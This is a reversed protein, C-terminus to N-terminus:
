YVAPFSWQMVIENSNGLAQLLTPRSERQGKFEIKSQLQLMVAQGTARLKMLQQQSQANTPTNEATSVSSSVWCGARASMPSFDGSHGSNTPSTDPTNLTASIGASLKGRAPSDCVRTGLFGNSSLPSHEDKCNLEGHSKSSGFHRPVSQSRRVDSEQMSKDPFHIFTNKVNQLAERTFQSGDLMKELSLRRCASADHMKRKLQKPLM